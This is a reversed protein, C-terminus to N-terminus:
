VKISSIEVKTYGKSGCGADFGKDAIIRIVKSDNKFFGKHVTKETVGRKKKKTTCDQLSDLVFKILNDLDGHNKGDEPLPFRFEVKFVLSDTDGFRFADGRNWTSVLRTADRRFTNQAVKSPNFRTGNYGPKDRQQVLPTGRTIFSVSRGPLITVPDVTLADTATATATATATSAVFLLRAEDSSPVDDDDTCCLDIIEKNNM